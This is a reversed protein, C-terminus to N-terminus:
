KNAKIVDNVWDSMAERSWVNSREESFATLVLLKGSVMTYSTTVSSYHYDDSTNKEGGSYQILSSYALSDDTEGHIPLVAIQSSSFVHESYQNEDFVEMAPMEGLHLDIVATNQAKLTNKVSSFDSLALKANEMPRFAEITFYRPFDSKGGNLASSLDSEQVFSLFAGAGQKVLRKQPKNLFAMDDTVASYGAPSPVILGVGGVVIEAALSFASSFLALAFIISKM